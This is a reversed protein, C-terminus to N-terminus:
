RNTICMSNGLSVAIAHTGGPVGNKGDAYAKVFCSPPPPPTHLTHYETINTNCGLWGVV